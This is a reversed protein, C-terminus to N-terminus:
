FLGLWRGQSGLLVTDLQGDEKMPSPPPPVPYWGGAQVLSPLRPQVGHITAHRIKTLPNDPLNPLWPNAELSDPHPRPHFPRGSSGTALPM